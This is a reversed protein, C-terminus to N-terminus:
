SHFARRVTTAVNALVHGYGDAVDWTRAFTAVSDHIFRTLCSRHFNAFPQRVSQKGQLDPARIHPSTSDEIMRRQWDSLKTRQQSLRDSNTLSLV